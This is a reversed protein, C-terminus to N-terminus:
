RRWALGNRPTEMCPWEETDGPVPWEETDRPVPWEETDGPVSWEETDGVVSWEETDGPLAMGYYKWGYVEETDAHLAM